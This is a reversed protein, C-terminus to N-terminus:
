EKLATLNGDVNKAVDDLFCGEIIQIVSFTRSFLSIYVMAFEFLFSEFYSRFVSM